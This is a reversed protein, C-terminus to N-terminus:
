NYNLSIFWFFSPDLFTNWFFTFTGLRESKFTSVMSTDKALQARMAELAPDEEEDEEEESSSEEDDNEDIIDEHVPISSIKERLSALFKHTSAIDGSCEKSFALLIDLMALIREKEDHSISQLIQELDSRALIKLNTCLKTDADSLNTKSEREANQIYQLTEITQRKIKERNEKKKHDRSNDFVYM